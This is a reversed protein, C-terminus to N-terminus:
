RRFSPSVRLGFSCSDAWVSKTEGLEARRRHRTQFQDPRYKRMRKEHDLKEQPTHLEAWDERYREVLSRRTKEPVVNYGLLKDLAASDSSKHVNM